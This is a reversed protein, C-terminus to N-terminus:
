ASGEQKIPSQHLDDFAYEFSSSAFTSSMTTVKETNCKSIDSNFGSSFFAQHLNTVRGVNWTSINGNFSKAQYFLQSFTTVRSVDWKSLDSNFANAKLFAASLATVKSTDWKSLDQCFLSKADFMIHLSTVSSIDWDSIHGNTAAYIPCSGDSTEVTCADVAAKLELRNAPTFVASTSESVFVILFVFLAIGDLVGM